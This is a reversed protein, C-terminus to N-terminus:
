PVGVLLPRTFGPRTAISIQPYGNLGMLRALHETSAPLNHIAENAQLVLTAGMAAARRIVRAMDEEPLYYLSCFATVVDFTGFGDDIFIRMDGTRVQLNFPRMERWSFIGANLRALEAIAPSAEVAVVERAGSRVMMLSMSANNAGLDVVRKGGVLPAVVHRNFFEWRGTGSDTSPFRGLTLGGGFDIPAYERYGHPVRANLARLRERAMGETLLATGFRANFARRDEDRAAHFAAGRRTHARAHPLARFKCATDTRVAHDFANRVGTIGAAHARDMLAELEDTTVRESVFREEHGAVLHASVLASERPVSAFLRTSRHFLLRATRPARDGWLFRYAFTPWGVRM